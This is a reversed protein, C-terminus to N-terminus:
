RVKRALIQFGPERGRLAERRLRLELGHRAALGSNVIWGTLGPWPRRRAELVQRAEFGFEALRAELLGPHFGHEMVEGGPGPSTPCVGRRYPREILARGEVFADIAEDLLEGFLGSTVRALHNARDEPLTPARDRIIARRREVFPTTVTDHATRRGPPGNEWADYLDFLTEQRGPHALNNGDSILLAGGDVLIRATEAFVMHLFMPNVHSIVENMLVLDVSASPVPLLGKDTREFRAEPHRTGILRRGADLYADVVDLGIAARAGRALFVPLALGVKCGVDVVTWGDMRPRVLDALWAYSRWAEEEDFQRAQAVMHGDMGSAAADRHIDRYETWLDM